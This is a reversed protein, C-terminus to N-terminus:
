RWSHITFRPIENEDFCRTAASDSLYGITPVVKSKEIWNAYDPMKSIKITITDPDVEKSRLLAEIEAVTSHGDAWIEVCTVPSETMAKFIPFVPSSRVFDTNVSSFLVDSFGFVVLNVPCAIVDKDRKWTHSKKNPNTCLFALDMNGRLNNAGCQSCSLNYKEGTVHHTRQHSPHYKHTVIM